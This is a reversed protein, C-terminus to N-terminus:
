GFMQEMIWEFVADWLLERMFILENWMQWKTYRTKPHKANIAQNVVKAIVIPDSGMANDVDDEVGDFPIFAHEYATDKRYKEMYEM